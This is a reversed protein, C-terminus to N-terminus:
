KISALAVQETCFKHVASVGGRVLSARPRDQVVRASM